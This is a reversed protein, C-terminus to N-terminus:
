CGEVKDLGHDRQHVQDTIEEGATTKKNRQQGNVYYFGDQRSLAHGNTKHDIIDCIANFERGEAKCRTYLNEAITNAFYSGFTGDELEM